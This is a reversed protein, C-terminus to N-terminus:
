LGAGLTACYVMDGAYPPAICAHSQHDPSERPDDQRQELIGEPVLLWKKDERRQVWYQGNHLQIPTPYCDQKNCCSLKRDQHGNPMLWSSYFKDHLALDQPHHEHQARAGAVVLFSLALCIVLKATVSM